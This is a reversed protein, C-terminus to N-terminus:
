VPLIQVQSLAGLCAFSGAQVKIAGAVVSTSNISAGAANVFRGDRQMVCFCPGNGDTAPDSRLFTIAGNNTLSAGPDDMLIGWALGAPAVGGGPTAICTLSITGNNEISAGGNVVIGHANYNPYGTASIALNGGKGIVISGGSYSSPGGLGIGTPPASFGSSSVLTVQLTGNINLSGAGYIQAFVMGSYGSSTFGNITVTIGAPITITDTSGPQTTQGWTAPDTWNGTQQATYQM